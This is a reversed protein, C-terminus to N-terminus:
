LHKRTGSINELLNASSMEGVNTGYKREIYRVSKESHTLSPAVPHSASSIFFNATRNIDDKGRDRIRSSVEDFGLFVVGVRVEGFDVGFYM